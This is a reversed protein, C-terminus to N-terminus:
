RGPNASPIIGMLIAILDLISTLDKVLNKPTFVPVTDIISPSWPDREMQYDEYQVFDYPEDLTITYLLHQRETLSYTYQSLDRKTVSGALFTVDADLFNMLGSIMSRIDLLRDVMFSMPVLEWAVTPIDKLRLGLKYSWDLLPNEVEYLVTAHYDLRRYGLSEYQIVQSYQVPTARYVTPTTSSSSDEARGSARRRRPRTPEKNALLEMLDVVSRMLPAVAFRYTKWLGAIAQAREVQNRIGELSKKHKVFTKTLRELAELPHKFFMITEKIEGLDEMFETPTADIKGLCKQKAIDVLNGQTLAPLPNQIIPSYVNDLHVMTVNGGQYTWTDGNGTAVLTMSGEHESFVRSSSTYRLSNNVIEGDSIKMHFNPTVTDAMWEEGMESIQEMTSYLNGNLFVLRDVFKSEKNRSRIRDTTM